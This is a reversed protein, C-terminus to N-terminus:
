FSLEVKLAYDLQLEFIDECKPKNMPSQNGDMIIAHLHQYPLPNSQISVILCANSFM